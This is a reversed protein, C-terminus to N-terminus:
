ADARGVKGKDVDVLLSDFKAHSVPDWQQWLEFRDRFQLSLATLLDIQFDVIENTSNDLYPIILEQM